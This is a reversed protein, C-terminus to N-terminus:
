DSVASAFGSSGGTVFTAAPLCFTKLGGTTSCEDDTACGLSECMGRASCVLGSFQGAGLGGSGSPGCERDSECPLTCEGATCVARVDRLSVACQENRTCKPGAVCVKSAALDCTFGAACDLISDCQRYCRNQVCKCEDASCTDNRDDFVDQGVCAADDACATPAPSGCTNTDLDCQSSLNSGTRTRAPCGGLTDGNRECKATYACRGAECGWTNAACNCFAELYFCAQQNAPTVVGACATAPDGMIASRLDACSKIDRYSFSSFFLNPPLQCCDAAAKCEGGCVNGTPMFGYKEYDCVAGGASSRPLCTLGQDCDSVLTCSEGRHGLRPGPAAGGDGILAQGTCRQLLCALGAQCDARRTCSEGEAGLAPGAPGTGGDDGARGTEACRNDICVLGKGCDATRVCSQGLASSPGDSDSDCGAPALALLGVFGLSAVRVILQGTKM